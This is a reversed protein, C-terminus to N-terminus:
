YDVSDSRVFGYGDPTVTDAYLGDFINIYRSPCSFEMTADFGTICNSLLFNGDYAWRMNEEILDMSRLCLDECSEGMMFIFLYDGYTLSVESERFCKVKERLGEATIAALDFTDICYSASTTLIPVKKGNVIAATEVLAQEATWAFLIMYKVISTLFPLSSFGVISAAIEAARTHLSTSTIVYAGATMMRVFMIKSAISGLNEADSRNGCIIYEQEYALASQASTIRDFRDGFHERIYLMLLLKQAGGPDNEEQGDGANVLDRSLDSGLFSEAGSEKGLEELLVKEADSRDSPLVGGTDSPRVRVPIKKESIEKEDLLLTLFGKAVTRKVGDGLECLLRDPKMESYDFVLKEYSFSGTNTRIRDLRTNWKQLDSATVESLVARAVDTSIYADTEIESLIVADKKLTEEMGEFDPRSGDLGTYRRMRTLSAKMSNYIEDSLIDSSSELLDAFSEVLPRTSDVIGHDEEILAVSERAELLCGSVRRMLEDTNISATLVLDNISDNLEKKEKELARITSDLADLSKQMEELSERVSAAAAPEEDTQGSVPKGNDPSKGERESGDAQDAEREQNKQANYEEMIRGLKASLDSMATVLSNREEYLGRLESKVEDRRTVLPAAKELEGTANEVYTLPNFYKDQLLPWIDPNNIGASVPDTGRTMFSKVFLEHVEGVTAGSCVLGDIKEMLLLTNRDIMALKDEIEMQREYVKYVKSEKTLIGIRSLIEDLTDVIACYKEFETVQELFRSGNETLFPRTGTIRCDEVSMGFSSKGAFGSLVEELEELDATKGGFATDIGFVSYKEFMPRYYEGLLSEVCTTLQMDAVAAAARSRAGELLVLILSMILLFSFSLFVTVSGKERM